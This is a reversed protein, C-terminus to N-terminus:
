ALVVADIEVLAGKPLASVGIAARAPEDQGFYEAYVDNIEAFAGLDTTYITMRMARDLSTGAAECVAKLNELCQRAQEGPTEGVLEGSDPHLPVQGSCFLLGAGRVAHNYPGIADPAGEANITEREHAM